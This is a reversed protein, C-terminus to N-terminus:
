SGGVGYLLFGERREIYSALDGGWGKVMDDVSIGEILANRIKDTGALHDFHLRKSYSPPRWQLEQPWLDICTALMHLGAEVPKFAGRETVHLQVGGCLEGQYKDFTPTFHCPRFAIGNLGLTNLNSAWGRADIWPAGIYEFPRTTGRGESVNIGEFLCTGPYVTATEITPINPSPQVWPLGTEDFWMGRSWGDMPVVQLDAGIGENALLALEGITLGHRITVPQLGVFSEFGPEPINGEVAVGNIPNPRDLLVIGRGHEKVAELAYTLTSAYTYFRAGVDQIDFVLIDVGEMMEATPKRVEGYLSYVPIGTAKDVRSEVHLADQADGRAGHEPGFVAALNIDPHDHFADFTSYLELTVGTPNTILGVRAEGLIASPDELLIEVGTRVTVRFGGQLGQWNSGM